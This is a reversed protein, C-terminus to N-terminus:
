EKLWLLFRGTVSSFNLLLSKLLLDKISCTTKIGCIRHKLAGEGGRKREKESSLSMHRLECGSLFHKWIGKATSGTLNELHCIPLSIPEPLWYANEEKVIM